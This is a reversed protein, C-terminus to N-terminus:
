EKVKKDHLRFGRSSKRVFSPVVTEKTVGCSISFSEGLVKEADGILTLIEARYSDRRKEIEKMQQSASIYADALVSVRENASIVKGPNAKNYLQRIYESDREFDPEPAEKLSYFEKVKEKINKWVDPLFDIEMTITENGSILAGIITRNLEAVGMQTQVQFGIHLPPETETWEKRYILSDIKKIEFNINDDIIFDFSSGIGLEEIYIYEPVPKIKWDNDEAIGYAIVDQLRTGWKMRSSMEIPISDQSNKEHWLEFMTKYPNCNYLCSVETSNIRKKRLELWHDKSEPITIVKNM